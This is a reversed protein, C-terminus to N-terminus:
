RAAGRPGTAGGASDADLFHYAPWPGTLIVECGLAQLKPGHQALVSEFAAVGDKPVLYAADLLLGGPVVGEPPELARTEAAPGDLAARLAAAAQSATALATRRADHSQKKAELFARGSGSLTSAAPPASEAPPALFRVRVGCEIHGALKDLLKATRRAGRKMAATAAAESSFVTFLKMPLLAKSGLFHEIVQEHALACASVWAMDHLGREIAQEGYKEEPADAVVLFRRPALEILRPRTAGPMGPPLAALDPPATESVVCYAYVVQGPVATARKAGAPVSASSAIRARSPSPRKASTM